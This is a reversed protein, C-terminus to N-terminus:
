CSAVAIDKSKIKKKQRRKNSRGSNGQPKEGSQHHQKDQNESATKGKSRNGKRKGNRKAPSDVPLEEVEDNDSAPICDTETKETDKIFKQLSVVENLDFSELVNQTVSGDKNEKFCIIRKSSTPLEHEHRMPPHPNCCEDDDFNSVVEDETAPSERGSEMLEADYLDAVSSFEETANEGDMFRIGFVDDQTPSRPDQCVVGVTGELGIEQLRIVFKSGHSQGDPEDSGEQPLHDIIFDYETAVSEDKASVKSVDTVEDEVEDNYLTNITQRQTISYNESRLDLQIPLSSVENNNDCVSMDEEESIAEKDNSVQPLTNTSKNAVPKHCGIDDNSSIIVSQVPNMDLIFENAGAQCHTTEQRIKYYDIMSVGVDSYTTKELEEDSSNSSSSSRSSSKNSGCLSAMNEEDTAETGETSSLTIFELAEQLSLKRGQGIGTVDLNDVSEKGSDQNSVKREEKDSFEESKSDMEEKQISSINCNYSTLTTDNTRWLQSDNCIIRFDEKSVEMDEKSTAQSPEDSESDDQCTSTVLKPVRPGNFAHQEVTTANDITGHYEEPMHYEDYDEMGDILSDDTTREDEEEQKQSLKWTAKPDAVEKGHYVDPLSIEESYLSSQSSHYEDQSM